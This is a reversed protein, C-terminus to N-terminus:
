SSVQGSTILKESKYPCKKGQSHVKWQDKFHFGLTTNGILKQSGRAKKRARESQMVKDIVRRELQKLADISGVIYVSTANRGGCCEDEHCSTTTAVGLCVTSCPGGNGATFKSDARYVCAGLPFNGISTKTLM